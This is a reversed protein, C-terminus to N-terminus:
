ARGRLSYKVTDEDFDEDDEEDLDFSSGFSNSNVGGHPNSFSHGNVGAGPNYYNPRNPDWPNQGYVHNTGESGVAFLAATGAVVAL